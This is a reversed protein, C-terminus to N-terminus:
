ILDEIGRYVPGKPEIGAEKLALASGSRYCYSHGIIEGNSKNHQILNKTHKYARFTPGGLNTQILGLIGSCLFVADLGLETGTQHEIYRVAGALFLSAYSGFLAKNAGVGKAYDVIEQLM